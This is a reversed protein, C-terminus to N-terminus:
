PHDQLIEIRIKGGADRPLAKVIQIHEAGETWQASLIEADDKPL